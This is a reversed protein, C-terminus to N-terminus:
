KYPVGADDLADEIDWTFWFTDSGMDFEKQPLEVCLAARSRLWGNEFILFYNDTKPTTYCGLEENWNKNLDLLDCVGSEFEERMKDM